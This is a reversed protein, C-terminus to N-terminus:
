FTMLSSPVKRRMSSINVLVLNWLTNAPKAEHDFGRRNPAGSGVTPCKAQETSTPGLGPGSRRVGADGRDERGLDGLDAVGGGSWFEAVVAAVVKEGAHHRRVGVLGLGHHVDDGGHPPVVDGRQGRLPVVALAAHLGEDM